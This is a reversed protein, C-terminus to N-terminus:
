LIKDRLYIVMVKYSKWYNKIGLSTFKKSFYNIIQNTGVSPFTPSDMQVIEKIERQIEKKKIELFTKLEEYEPM